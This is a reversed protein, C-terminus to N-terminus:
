FISDRDAGPDRDTSTHIEQYIGLLKIGDIQCVSNAALPIIRPMEM